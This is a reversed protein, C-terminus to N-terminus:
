LLALVCKHKKLIATNGNYKGQDNSGERRDKQIM